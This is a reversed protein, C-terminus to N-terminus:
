CIFGFFIRIQVLRVGYIRGGSILFRFGLIKFFPMAFFRFLQNNETFLSIAGPTYLQKPEFCFSLYIKIRGTKLHYQLILVSHAATQIKKKHHVSRLFQATFSTNKLSRVRTFACPGEQLYSVSGPPSTSRNLGPLMFYYDRCTRRDCHNVQQFDLAKYFHRKCAGARGHHHHPLHFSLHKLLIKDNAFGM